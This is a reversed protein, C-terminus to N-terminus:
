DLFPGVVHKRVQGNDEMYDLVPEESWNFNHRPMNQTTNHITLRVRKGGGFVDETGLAHMLNLPILELHNTAVISVKWVDEGLPPKKRLEQIKQLETRNHHIHADVLSDSIM